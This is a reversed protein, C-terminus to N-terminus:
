DDDDVLQQGKQGLGVEAGFLEAVGSVAIETKEPLGTELIAHAGDVWLVRVRRRQYTLPKVKEYVWAGGLVDFQVASWPLMAVQKRLRLPLQVTVREGPRWDANNNVLYFLDLSATLPTAIPPAQAVPEGDPSKEVPVTGLRDFRVRIGADVSPLDGVYIPVRLWVEKLTVVEFLPTGAPVIQGAHATLTRVVGVEPAPISVPTLVGAATDTLLNALLDHRAKAAEVARTALDFRAQAEDVTRKSGGGERLVNQARTLAIQAAAKETDASKLVGEVEVRTTVLTTRAEPTLIPVLRFVTQNREVKQGARVLGEPGELLRGALPAVVMSARGPIPTIEGGVLRYQRRDQRMLPATKLGLREEAQATLRIVNLDSEKITRAKAPPPNDQPKAKGGGLFLLWVASGLCLGVVAFGLRNTASM